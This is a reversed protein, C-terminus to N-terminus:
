EATPIYADIIAERFKELMGDDLEFCSRVNYVPEGDYLFDYGWEDLSWDEYRTVDKITLLELDTIKFNVGCSHFTAIKKQLEGIEGLHHFHYELSCEEEAVLHMSWNLMIWKSGDFFEELSKSQDCPRGVKYFTYRVDYEEEFCDFLIFKEHYDFIQENVTDLSKKVEEYTALYSNSVAYIKQDEKNDVGPETCSVASLLLVSALLLSLLKKIM